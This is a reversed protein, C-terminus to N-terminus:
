ITSPSATMAPSIPRISRGATRPSITRARASSAASRRRRRRSWAATRCSASACRSTSMTRPWISSATALMLRVDIEPYAKLFDIVVPLVHLRGFVLPATIVLEGRPASYEGAAAREAEAVDDLIRRCAAVYDRGADTLTVRRSSRNLLARWIRKSSPSRAASPPSRCGLRRSAASLSGAEVVALLVTMAELRDM